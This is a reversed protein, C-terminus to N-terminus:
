TSSRKTKWQQYAQVIADFVLKPAIDKQCMAAGTEKDEHCFERTYHLRHCPFCATNAPELTTTNVWHKSLNEKSSHSLMIVKPIPEFAVANLVGTEPGVVCDVRQALTLTDRVEMEGSTLRVRATAEWGAELIKCAIDGTFIVVAEPIAALVNAIVDDQWPYFKHISSGALAWMINFRQPTRAMPPLPGALERRIEALFQEARAEEADTAYFRADSRYPLEALKATFELYNIGLMERRLNDPWMHNARGPMALLTGEVSESLNIFRDYHRANAVWFETLEQNPVQDTDQLYFEDIHPDHKLIDHGRPTTMFTVHYGQRKLEPLINASQISDGMGGYRVVCVTKAPKPEYASRSHLTCNQKGKRFVQLFSYEMRENREDEVVMDWSGPLRAMAQQIDLPIFDHKHDPNSGTTGINPYFDRHPLHLVLYGGVKIKSWWNVLAAQYDEIHELLHSSFVFDLDGDDIFDLNAADECVVDPKIEINFLETDKCSDVGVFHPFAKRPGCGVDLGKGRTYRVVEYKCKDAEGGQPDDSRWVM